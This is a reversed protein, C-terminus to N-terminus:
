EEEIRVNYVVPQVVNQTVVLRVVTSPYLERESENDTSVPLESISETGLM